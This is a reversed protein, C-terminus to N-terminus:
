AAIPLQVRGSDLSGSHTRTRNKDLQTVEHGHGARQVEAEEGTCHPPQLLSSLHKGLSLDTGEQPHWHRAPCHASLAITWPFPWPWPWPWLAATHASFSAVGLAACPQCCPSVLTQQLWQKRMLETVGFLNMERIGVKKM